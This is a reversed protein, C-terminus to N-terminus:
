LNKTAEEFSLVPPECQYVTTGTEEPLIKGINRVRLDPFILPVFVM